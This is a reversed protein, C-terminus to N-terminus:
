GRLYRMSDNAYKQVLLEMERYRSKYGKKKSQRKLLMENKYIIKLLENLAIFPNHWGNILMLFKFSEPCDSERAHYYQAYKEIEKEANRIETVYKEYKLKRCADYIEDESKNEVQMEHCLNRRAIIMTRDEENM